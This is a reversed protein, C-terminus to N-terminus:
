SQLGCKQYKTLSPDQQVYFPFVIEQGFILNGDNVPTGDKDYWQEGDRILELLQQVKVKLM